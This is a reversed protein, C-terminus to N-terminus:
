SSPENLHNIKFINFIFYSALFIQEKDTQNIIDFNCLNELKEEFAFYKINESPNYIYFCHIGHECNELLLFYNSKSKKIKFSTIQNYIDLCKVSINEIESKSFNDKLNNKYIENFVTKFNLNQLIKTIQM